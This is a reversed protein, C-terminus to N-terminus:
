VLRIPDLDCHYELLLDVVHYANRIAAHHLTTRGNSEAANVAAGAELLIRVVEPNGGTYATLHLPQIGYEPVEGRGRHKVLNVPCGAKILLQVCLCCCLLELWCLLSIVTSLGKIHIVLFSLCLFGNWLLIDRTKWPYM